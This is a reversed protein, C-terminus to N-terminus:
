NVQLKEMNDKMKESEDQLNKYDQALKNDGADSSGVSMLEQQKVVMKQM